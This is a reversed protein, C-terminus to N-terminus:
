ILFSFLRNNMKLMHFAASPFNYIYFTYFYLNQTTAILAGHIKFFPHTHIYLYVNAQLTVTWLCLSLARNDKTKKEPPHPSNLATHMKYQYAKTKNKNTVLTKFLTLKRSSITDQELNTDQLKERGLGVSTGEAKPNENIIKQSCRYPVHRKRVNRLLSQHQWM